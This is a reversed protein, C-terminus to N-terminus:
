SIVAEVSLEELQVRLLQEQIKVSLSGPKFSPSIHRHMNLYIQMHSYIIPNRFLEYKKPYNSRSAVNWHPRLLPVRKRADSAGGSRTSHPTKFIKSFRTAFGLAPFVEAPNGHTLHGCVRQVLAEWVKEPVENFRVRRRCWQVGSSNQPFVNVFLPLRWAFSLLVVSPKWMHLPWRLCGTSSLHLFPTLEGPLSRSNGCVHKCYSSIMLTSSLRQFFVAALQVRITWVACLSRNNCGPSVLIAVLIREVQLAHSQPWGQDSGHTMEAEEPLDEQTATRLTLSFSDKAFEASPEDNIQVPSAFDFCEPNDCYARVLDDQERLFIAATSVEQQMEVLPPASAEKITAFAARNSAHRHDLDRAYAVREKHIKRDLAVDIDTQYRTLELM